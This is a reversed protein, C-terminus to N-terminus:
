VEDKRSKEREAQRYSRLATDLFDKLRDWEDEDLLFDLQLKETEEVVTFAVDGEQSDICLEYNKENKQHRLVLEM